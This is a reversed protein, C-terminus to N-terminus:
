AYNLPQRTCDLSPDIEQFIFSLLPFHAPIIGLCCKIHIKAINVDPQTTPRADALVPGKVAKCSRAGVEDVLINPLAARICEIGARRILAPQASM